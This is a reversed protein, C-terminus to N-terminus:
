QGDPEAEEGEARARYPIRCVLSTGTGADSEVHLEGGLIRAREVIGLLGFHETGSRALHGEVDFGRGDDRVRLTLDDGGFDLGVRVHGAGSHRLANTVAEHAIRLLNREVAPPLPRPTGTLEFSTAPGPGEALQALSQSLSAALGDPGKSTQARLVWISRRVEDLSSRAMAHARRLHARAKDPERDLRRLGTEIQLGVGAVSQALTDHLERAIRTREGLVAAFRARMQGVRLRYGAAIALAGAAICLLYFLPSRTFPPRIALELTAPEGSWRGDPSSAMVQFRYRGPSLTGYHAFRRTGADVWDPDLGDLRHRFRTKHAAVFSIAAYEITIEGRGPPYERSAHPDGPHRDVSISEITVSPAPRDAVVDRPDVVSVGKTTAFWLRGDAARFAPGNSLAGETTRLGDSTDFRMPVVHTSEKELVRRVQRKDLRFLSGPGGIWLHGLGDDLVVRLFSEPLGQEVGIHRFRGNEFHALGGGTALWLTGDDDESIWRVRPNPLGEATSYLTYGDAEVRALGASSAIWVTGRRDRHIAHPFALAPGGPSRPVFTDGRLRGMGLRMALAGIGEEDEFLVAVRQREHPDLVPTRERIRGGQLTFVRGNAAGIWLTGNRSELMTVVADSGLGVPLPFTELAGGAHLRVVGAVATGIWAGGGRAEIIATVVPDRLGELRGFTVFRGNSLCALGDATGVWVNGDRDEVLARVDHDPLGHDATLSAFRGRAYRSLGAATGIWLNGDSDRLLSSVNDDPLGHRATFRDIGGSRLHLLGHRTGIWLSGDPDACLAQVTDNTTGDARFGAGELRSLGDASGVWLRGAADEAVTNTGVTTVDAVFLFPAAEARRWRALPRGFQAVWLAGDRTERLARVPGARDHFPLPTFTGAQHQLVLGGTTGVYLTGDAGEALSSVGGDGLAPTNGADYAVFRTGDHRVLGAGTGLWLYGDRTQLVAHVTNSGLSAAGWRTVVYQSPAREPDLALAAAASLVFVVAGPAARRAPLASVNGRLM